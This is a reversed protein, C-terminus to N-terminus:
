NNRTLWDLLDQEQQFDLLAEGLDELQTLSLQNILTESPHPEHPAQPIIVGFGSGRVGKRVNTNIATFRSSSQVM